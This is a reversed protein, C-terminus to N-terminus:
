FGRDSFNIVPIFIFFTFYQPLLSWIYKITDRDKKYEYTNLIERVGIRRVGENSMYVYLHRWSHPIQIYLTEEAAMEHDSPNIFFATYEATASTTIYWPM